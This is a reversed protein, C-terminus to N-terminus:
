TYVCTEQQATEKRKATEYEFFFLHEQYIFMLWKRIRVLDALVLTAVVEAFFFLQQKVLSSVFVHLLSM